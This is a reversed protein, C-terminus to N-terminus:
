KSCVIGYFISTITYKLRWDGPILCLNSFEQRWQAEAEAKIMERTVKVILNTTM